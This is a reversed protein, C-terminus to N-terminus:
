NLCIIFSNLLIYFDKHDNLEFILFKTNIENLGYIAALKLWIPTIPEKRKILVDSFAISM